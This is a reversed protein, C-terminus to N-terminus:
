PKIFKHSKSCTKAGKDEAYVFGPGTRTLSICVMVLGGEGRLPATKMKQDLIDRLTRFRIFSFDIKTIKLKRSITM